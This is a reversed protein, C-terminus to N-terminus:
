VQQIYKRLTEKLENIFVREQNTTAINRITVTNDELTQYDCTICFPIGIEDARAYRKGISDKFEIVCEFEKKLDNYIKQALEPLGDKNVLPFIAVKIPAIKPKFLFYSWGRDNEVFSNQLVAYLTRDLGFSPEIVHPVIKEGDEVVFIDKKSFDSHRKLDYDTRYANGVVEKWGFDFKIELDVNSKSYFPTEDELVHRFRIKEEPIGISKYFEIEKLLFLAFVKNPIIGKRILEEVSIRKVLNSNKKQEEREYIPLEKNLVFDIENYDKKPNIFFEIEMQTFERLRIFFQRPSIENRFSKGIQMIGFPLKARMSSFVNLFNTFIGQATEPRLYVEEEKLGSSSKFLLKFEKVDSFEGGCKCKLNNKKIIKDIEEINKGEVNVHLEEEILHDARFVSRCKKCEVIPDFFRDLHGSAKLVIQPTILSTEIEYIKYIFNEVFIQKFVNIINNKLKIGLPGLDFFGSFGGYINFAPFVFGRKELVSILKKSIENM